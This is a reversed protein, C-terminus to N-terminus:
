AKRRRRADLPRGATSAVKYRRNVYDDISQPIERGLLEYALRIILSKVISEAEAPEAEEVAKLIARHNQLAAELDISQVARQLYLRTRNGAISWAQFLYPNGSEVCLTGHFNWVHKLFTESARRACAKQLDGLVARLRGLVQPDRQFAILRAAAGEVLARFLILHEIDDATPSAVMAGRGRRMEVLGEKALTRLAERLPARSIGLQASLDNEVLRQGAQLEGSVIAETLRALTAEMLNPPRVLQLSAAVFRM